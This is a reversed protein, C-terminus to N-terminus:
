GAPLLPLEAGFWGVIQVGPCDIEIGPASPVVTRGILSFPGFRNARHLPARRGLPQEGVLRLRRVAVLGVKAVLGAGPPIQAQLEGRRLGPLCLQPHRLLTASLWRRRLGVVQLEFSVSLPVPEVDVIEARKALATVPDDLHGAPPWGAPPASAFPSAVPTALRHPLPITALRALDAEMTAESVLGRDTTLHDVPVPDLLDVESPDVLPLPWPGGRGSVQFTAPQWGSISDPHHWDAPESHVPLYPFGGADLSGLRAQEMRERAQNRIQDFVATEVGTASPHITASDALTAVVESFSAVVPQLGAGMNLGLEDALRSVTELARASGAGARPGSRTGDTPTVRPLVGARCALEARILPRGGFQLSLQPALDSETPLWGRDVSTILARLSGDLEALEIGGMGIEDPEVEGM